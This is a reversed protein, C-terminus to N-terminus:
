PSTGDSIAIASQQWKPYHNNDLKQLCKKICDSQFFKNQDIHLLHKSPALM